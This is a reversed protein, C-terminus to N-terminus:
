VRIECIFNFFQKIEQKNKLTTINKEQFMDENWTKKNIKMM